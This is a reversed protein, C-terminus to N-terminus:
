STAAWTGSTPMGAAATGSTGTAVSPPTTGSTGVPSAGPDPVIKADALLYGHVTVGSAGTSSFNQVCGTVTIGRDAAQAAVLGASAACAFAIATWISRNM